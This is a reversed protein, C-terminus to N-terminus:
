LKISLITAPFLFFFFVAAGGGRAALLAVATLEGSWEDLAAALKEEREDQLRAPPAFPPQTSIEM